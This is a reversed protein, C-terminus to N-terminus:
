ISYHHYFFLNRKTVPSHAEKNDKAILNKHNIVM